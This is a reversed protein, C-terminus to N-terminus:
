LKIRQELISRRDKTKRKNQGTFEKLLSTIRPVSIHGGSVANLIANAEKTLQEYKSKSLM